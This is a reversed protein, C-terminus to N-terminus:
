RSMIVIAVDMQQIQYDDPPNLQVQTHKKGFQKGSEAFKQRIFEDLYSGSESSLIESISLKKEETVVGILISKKQKRIHYSLEVFSKGVFEAPIPLKRFEAGTKYDFLDEIAEPIGPSIIHNVLLFGVHQDNLVIADASARQLPVRSAPDTIHAYVKVKPNLSKITLTALLTREDVKAASPATEDALIVAVQAFKINARMLVEESTFNGSVFKVDLDRFTYIINSIQGEALENVLVFKRSESASERFISLIKEANRNWGCILIHNKVTVEQLGKDEKIKRAVLISSVVGSLLSITVVGALVVFVTVFRGLATVPYIDGYGTTTITVFAWWVADGFSQFRHNSSREIFFVIIASAFALVFVAGLVGLLQNSVADRFFKRIKTIDPYLPQKKLSSETKGSASRENM